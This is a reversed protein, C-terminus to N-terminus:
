PLKESTITGPNGLDDPISVLAKKDFTQGIKTKSEYLETPVNLTNGRCCASMVILNNYYRSSM